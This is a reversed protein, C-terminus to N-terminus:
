SAVPWPALPTDARVYLPHRPHGAKTEGLCMPKIGAVDLMGAVHPGRVSAGADAGWAVVVLEAERAARLIELDNREVTPPSDITLPRYVPVGRGRDFEVREGVPAEVRRLWSPDTARLAYLNVVVLRDFGWARAFSVCRRITPDDREADATSPNLLVFTVPRRPHPGELAMQEPSRLGERELRYRYRGDDSFLASGTTTM